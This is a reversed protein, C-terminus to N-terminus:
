NVPSASSFIETIRGEPPFVSAASDALLAQLNSELRSREREALDKFEFPQLFGQTAWMPFLMRACTRVTSDGIHFLVEVRIGEDIPKELHVLGGTVSLLHLKGRFQRGNELRALLLVTGSLKVRPARLAGHEQLFTAM